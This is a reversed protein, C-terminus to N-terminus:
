EMRMKSKFRGTICNMKMWNKQYIMYLRHIKSVRYGTPIMYTHEQSCMKKGKSIVIRYASQTQMGNFDSDIWSFSLANRTVGYPQSLLNIKMEDPADEGTQVFINQELETQLKEEQEEKSGGSTYEEGDAADDLSGEGSKGDDPQSEEGSDAEPEKSTGDEIKERLKVM